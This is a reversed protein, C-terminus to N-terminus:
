LALANGGLNRQSPSGAAASRWPQARAVLQQRNIPAVSRFGCWRSEHNLCVALLKFADDRMESSWLRAHNFIDHPPQTM